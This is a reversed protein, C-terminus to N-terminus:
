SFLKQSAASQKQFKSLKKCHQHCVDNRVSMYEQGPICAYISTSKNANRRGNVGSSKRNMPCWKSVADYMIEEKHSPRPPMEQKTNITSPPTSERSGM